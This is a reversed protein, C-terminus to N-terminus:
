SLWASFGFLGRSSAFAPSPFLYGGREDAYPNSVSRVPLWKPQRNLLPWWCAASVLRHINCREQGNTHPAQSPVQTSRSPSAGRSTESSIFSRLIYCLCHPGGAGWYLALKPLISGERPVAICYDFKNDEGCRSCIFLTTVM